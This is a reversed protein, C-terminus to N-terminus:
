DTQPLGALRQAHGDTQVTHTNKKNHRNAGRNQRTLTFPIYLNQRGTDCTHAMKLASIGAVAESECHGQMVSEAVSQHHSLDKANVFDHM